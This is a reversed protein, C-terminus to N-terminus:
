LGVHVFRFLYLAEGKTGFSDATVLPIKALLVKTGGTKGSM